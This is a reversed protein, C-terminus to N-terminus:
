RLTELRYEYLKGSAVIDDEGIDTNKAIAMFNVLRPAGNRYMLRKAGRIKYNGNPYREVIEAMLSDGPKVEVAKAIDIDAPTAEPVQIEEGKKALAATDAAQAPARGAGGAAQNEGEEVPLGMAKRRLRDQAKALEIEREQPSLTRRV